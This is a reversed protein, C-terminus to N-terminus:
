QHSSQPISGTEVSTLETSQKMSRDIRAEHFAEQKIGIRAKYENSTDKTLAALGISHYKSTNKRFGLVFPTTM